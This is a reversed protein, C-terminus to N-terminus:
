AGESRFRTPRRCVIGPYKICLDTALKRRYTNAAEPGLSKVKDFPYEQYGLFNNNYTHRM